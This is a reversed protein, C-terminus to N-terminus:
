IEKGIRQYRRRFAERGGEMVRCVEERVADDQLCGSSVVRCQGKKYDFVHIMEADGNVVINPNHTVIIFQRRLKNKRIQQVVLEYILRNDLDDEPQDLVLPESGYALLFALMAAARQGASAQLISRFDSGDGKPSYEVKVADEPIWLM